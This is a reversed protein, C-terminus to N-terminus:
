EVEWRIYVQSMRSEKEVTGKIFNSDKIFGQAVQKLRNRGQEFEECYLDVIEMEEPYHLEFEVQEANGTVVYVEEDQPFLGDWDYEYVYTYTESLDTGTPFHVDFRKNNPRDTIKEVRLDRESDYARIHEEWDWEMPTDFSRVFHTRSEADGARHMTTERAVTADGDANHIRITWHNNEDRFETAQDERIIQSEESLSEMYQERGSIEATVDMARMHESEVEVDTVYIEYPKSALIDHVDEYEEYLHEAKKELLRREDETNHIAKVVIRNRDTDVDLNVILQCVDWHEQSEAPLQQVYSSIDPARDKNTDLGDAFQFLAAIHRLNVRHRSSGVNVTETESVSKTDEARRHVRCIEAVCNAVHFDPFGLREYNRRIFNWSLIHHWKRILEGSDISEDQEDTTGIEKFWETDTDSGISVEEIYIKKNISMGIDHLWATAALLYKEAPNLEMEAVEELLTVMELVRKSHRSGHDNFYPNHVPIEELAVSMEDVMERYSPWYDPIFSEHFEVLRDSIDSTGFVGALWERLEEREMM